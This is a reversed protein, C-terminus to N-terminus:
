LFTKTGTLISELLGTALELCNKRLGKTGPHLSPGTRRLPPHEVGTMEEEVVVVVDGTDVVEVEEEMTDTVPLMKRGGIIPPYLLEMTVDEVVAEGDEVTVIEVMDEAVVEEIVEMGRMEATPEELRTGYEGETEEEEVVVEDEPSVEEEAEEATKDQHSPIVVVVM